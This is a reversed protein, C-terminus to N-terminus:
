PEAPFTHWAALLQGCNQVASVLQSEAVPWAHTTVLRSCPASFLQWFAADANCSQEASASQAVVGPSMQQVM